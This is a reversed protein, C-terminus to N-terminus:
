RGANCISCDSESYPRFLTPDGHSVHLEHGCSYPLAYPLIFMPATIGCNCPVPELISAPLAGTKETDITHDYGFGHQFLEHTLVERTADYLGGFEAQLKDISEEFITIMPSPQRMYLGLLRYGKPTNTAQLQWEQPSYEVEYHIADAIERDFRPLKAKIEGLIYDAMSVFEDSM